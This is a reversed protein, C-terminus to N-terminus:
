SDRVLSLILKSFDAYGDISRDVHFEAAHHMIKDLQHQNFVRELNGFDCNDVKEFAYYPSDMIDILPELNGAYTLKDLKVVKALLAGVTSCAGTGLISKWEFKKMNFYKGGEM